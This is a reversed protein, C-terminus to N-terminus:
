FSNKKKLIVNMANFAVILSVLICYVIGILAYDAICLRFSIIEAMIAYKPILTIDLIAYIGSAIIFQIFSTILVSIFVMLLLQKKSQGIIKLVYFTKNARGIIYGYGINFSIAASTIILIIINMESTETIKTISKPLEYSVDHSFSKEINHAYDTINKKNRIKATIQVTWIKQESSISNQNIQCYNSYSIGVVRYEKGSFEIIDNISYENNGSLIIQNEASYNNIFDGARIDSKGINNYYFMIFKEKDLWVSIEDANNNEVFNEAFTNFDHFTIPNEYNIEYKGTGENVLATALGYIYMLSIFSVAQSLLILVFIISHSSISKFFVKILNYVRILM